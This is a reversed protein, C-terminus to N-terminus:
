NEGKLYNSVTSTPVGMKNAIEALTYNSARMAKITNVQATSLSSSAKPMARQRLSDPDTNNLIKTLINESVAGAQIAAWESDTIKISRDKRSISGVETRYRSLAQQGTKKPDITKAAEKRSMGPNEDMVSRIKREVEANAKLQAARERPANLLADNLKRKLSDVEAKYTKNATASYAVKGTSMMEKRAQNAMSKMTNAYDAYVLEMKHRAPSVLEYADDAEAMKTSKQLRTKTITKVEGTRKDVKSVEYYADDAIKYSVKGTEPDIIPSGQRKPVSKQGKAKSIITAAGGTAKGQYKKHLAAVNNDIESQKYDLHHKEADIVVMSHRVAAALEDPYAGALTMDTILNSIVGMQTGTNKMIRFEKGNRYYHEKGDSDVTKTDYGYSDKPDFGKLGELENTSKIKVKGAKDHTPICM